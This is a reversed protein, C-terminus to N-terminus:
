IATKEMIAHAPPVYPPPPKSRLRKWVNYRKPMLTYLFPNVMSNLYTLLQSILGFLGNEDYSVRPPLYKFLYSHLWYPIFCCLWVTVILFVIKFAKRSSTKLQLTDPNGSERIRINGGFIHTFMKIYVAIMLISPIFFTIVSIAAYYNDLAKIGLQFKCATKTVTLTSSIRVAVAEAKMFIIPPLAIVFATVWVIISINRAVSVNRCRLSTMPYTIVLYREITMVTLTYASAHLTIFDLGLYVTRCGIEGFKWERDYNAWAWFIAGFIYLLDASALNAIYTSITNQAMNSSNCVTIGLVLANAPLGVIIILLYGCLLITRYWTPAGGGGGGGDPNSDSALPDDTINIMDLFSSPSAMTLNVAEEISSSYHGESYLSYETFETTFM